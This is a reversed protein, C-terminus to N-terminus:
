DRKRSCGVFYLYQQGALRILESVLLFVANRSKARKPLAQSSAVVSILNCLGNMIVRIKFLSTEM